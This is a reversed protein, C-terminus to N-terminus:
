VVEFRLWDVAVHGGGEVSLFVDAVGLPARSTLPVSVEAM